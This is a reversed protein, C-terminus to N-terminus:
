QLFCMEMSLWGKGPDKGVRQETVFDKKLPDKMYPCILICSGHLFKHFYLFLTANQFCVTEVVSLSNNGYYLIFPNPVILHNKETGPGPFKDKCEYEFYVLYIHQDILFIVWLISLVPNM